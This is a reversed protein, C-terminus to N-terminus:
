KAQNELIILLTTQQQHKQKTLPNFCVQTSLCQQEQQRRNRFLNEDKKYWVLFSALGILTTGM